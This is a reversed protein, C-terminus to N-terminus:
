VLRTFRHPDRAPTNHAEGYSPGCLQILSLELEFGTQAAASYATAIIVRLARIM